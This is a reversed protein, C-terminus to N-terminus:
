SSVIGDLLRVVRDAREAVARSHTVVVIATGQDARQRLLDLIRAETPADVEGTPEDALLVEPQNVLATALGARAAEGGSLQSPYANARQALGVDDLLEHRRRRDSRGALRQAVALNDDVSLHELLNGAQFVMGIHRARLSARQPEPRRSMTRGAVTVIGGDPEDLGALCALLTSKGSGSPGTVAVVEGADVSLSVGRLALTEEDGAHFFRYLNTADLLATM